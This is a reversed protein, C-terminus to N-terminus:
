SDLPTLSEGSNPATGKLIPSGSVEGKGGDLQHLPLNGMAVSTTMSLRGGVEKMRKNFERKMGHKVADLVTNVTVRPTHAPM